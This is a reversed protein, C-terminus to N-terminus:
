KYYNNKTWTFTSQGCDYVPLFNHELMLEENSTGKGYNTGFLQDFGRHRLLNDTVHQKTKMNYWHKSPGYYKHKEFGFREYVDGTFKSNDCYSIISELKYKNLIYKFIKEAGGVIKYDKHTCLRLLEWEYNKNYRPKGFTMIQVLTDNKYLGYRITQGKCTNQLHFANLFENCEKEPVEKLVLKRAYLTEKPKLMNVIKDLDDWDWIHICWYHKKNACETKNLHYNKNKPTGGYANIYSNHTITPNIEILINDTKFDYSFNNIPYEREYIINHKDLLDGFHMNPKSDNTSLNRCTQTMCFWDVGYKELNTQKIKERINEDQLIYNVGYKKICTQKTKEKIEVCQMPHEVGYKKINTQRIKEKISKNQFVNEVGYRKLNTYKIKEKISKSQSPYECGYKELNTHKTKKIIKESQLPCPTGYKEINTNKTKEKFENVRSPYEVGYKKICTNKQKQKVTNNKAVNDVGFHQLCTEKYKQIKEVASNSCQQSCYKRYGKVFSVFKCRHGCKPCIGLLFNIDDYLYHYLKQQFTFNKEFKWTCFDLYEDYFHNSFWSESITLRKGSDVISKFVNLINQKTNM